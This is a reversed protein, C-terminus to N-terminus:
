RFVSSCLGSYLSKVLSFSILIFVRPGFVPESGLGLSFLLVFLVIVITLSGPLCQESHNLLTFFYYGDHSLKWQSYPYFHETIITGIAIAWWFHECWLITPLLSCFCSYRNWYSFGMWHNASTSISDCCVSKPFSVSLIM